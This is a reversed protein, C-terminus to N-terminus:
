YVVLIRLAPCHIRIKQVSWIKMTETLTVCCVLLLQFLRKRSRSHLRLSEQPIGIRVAFRFGRRCTRNYKEADSRRWNISHRSTFSDEPALDIKNRILEFIERQRAEIIESIQQVPMENSRDATTNFKVM